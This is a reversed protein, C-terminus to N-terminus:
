KKDYDQLNYQEIIELLITGYKPNTSYGAKYLNEAYEQRTQAERVMKYRDKTGILKGYDEFSEEASDYARFYDKIEVRDDGYIEETKLLVGNEKVGKIGFYNKHEITLQSKGFDSELAAQALVVSPFLGHKRSIKQAFPALVEFFDSKTQISKIEEEKRVDRVLFSISGIVFLLCLSLVLKGMINKNKRRAM